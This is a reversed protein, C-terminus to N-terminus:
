HIVDQRGGEILVALQMVREILVRDTASLDRLWDPEAVIRSAMRGILARLEAILPDPSV